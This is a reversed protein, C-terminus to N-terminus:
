GLTKGINFTPTTSDARSWELEGAISFIRRTGCHPCDTITADALGDPLHAEEARLWHGCVLLIIVKQPKSM